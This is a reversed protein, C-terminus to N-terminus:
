RGWYNEKSVHVGRRGCPLFSIMSSKRRFSIVTLRCQRQNSESIHEPCPCSNDGDIFLLLTVSLPALIKAAHMLASDVLSRFMDPERYVSGPGSRPVLPSSM